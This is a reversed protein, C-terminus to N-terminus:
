HIQTDFKTDLTVITKTRPNRDLLQWGPCANATCRSQGDWKWIKGDVHRQYLATGGAVIDKTRPNSDILTWGPCATATCSSQGGDWKWIKGDVHRQFFAGHGGAIAKTRPNSDILTWGPCATATCRSQGDWKWTKGDVHRQYLESQTFAGVGVAINETRSNNDVLTWGPCASATCAGGIFKWIQGNIHRAYLGDVGFTIEKTQPNTDILTWGPCANGTCRFQENWRWIKGDVHRQYVGAISETRPNKDILDWGPCANENCPTGNYRWIAGDDHLQLLTVPYPRVLDGRGYVSRAANVDNATLVGLAEACYSWGMISQRDAPGLKIANPLTNKYCSVGSPGDPRLQEHDFGLVHGFEHLILSRFNARTQDNQNWDDRFGMLLGPPDNPPPVVRQSAVSLTDMGVRLTTGGYGPDGTRLKVRVHKDNGSIPCDVWTTRLNLLSIWGDQITQMVFAKAENAASASPFQLLQHWCMPVTNGNNTWLVTSTNQVLPQAVSGVNENQSIANKAFLLCFILTLAHIKKRMACRFTYASLRLSIMHDTNLDQDPKFDNPVMMNEGQRCNTCDSKIRRRKGFGLVNGRIRYSSIPTNVRVNADSIAAATVLLAIGYIRTDRM